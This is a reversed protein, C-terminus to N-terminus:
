VPIEVVATGPALSTGKDDEVKIDITILATSESTRVVERVTGQATVNMDKTNPSRFQCELSVIRGHPGIWGRLANHMYSWQLNGMGFAGSFGAAKGAEDDMHIPVFEDNVAAYRNWNHFGTTRSFAPLEQGVSPVTPATHM